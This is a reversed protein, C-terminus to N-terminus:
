SASKLLTSPNMNQSVRRLQHIGQRALSIKKMSSTHARCSLNNYQNARVEDHIGRYVRAAVAIAHRFRNPLYPIGEYARDYASNAEMIIQELLLIYDPPIPKSKQADKKITILFEPTINHASMLDTPLYVRGMDLDEGVDRIINTLQMAHGLDHARELVWPERIGFAQTIWDGVVSAVRYTYLRLDEMSAYTLSEVDMRMGEILDSILSYPIDMKSMKSMVIDAVEIGTSHGQYASHTIQEWVNLIDYSQATSGNEKDVLNDTFRCFLYIETVLSREESPFLRSAFSFSLSNRQFFREWESVPGLKQAQLMIQTVGSSSDPKHISPLKEYIDTSTIGNSRCALACRHMWKEIIETITSQAHLNRVQDLLSSGRQEIFNLACEAMSQHNESSFFETIAQNPAQDFWEFGNSGLVFTWVKNHFDQLKPKGTHGNPCYDLFDDVLQYFIGLDIGIKQLKEPSHVSYGSWGPLAAAIGFLQGSKMRVVQEYRELHNEAPAQSNQITEGRVMTEIAEIFKMLFDNCGTMAAVRYAGTLYLDGVLVSAGIGKEALLTAENRRQLGGDFVDDHYISAEHVMQIALCGHWFREDLLDQHEPAVFSFATIPRLLKGSPAPITMGLKETVSVSGSIGAKVHEVVTM